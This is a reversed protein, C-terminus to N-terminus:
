RYPGRVQRHGRQLKDMKAALRDRIKATGGRGQGRRCCRSLAGRLGDETEDIRSYLKLERNAQLTITQERHLHNKLDATASRFWTKNAIPADTLM